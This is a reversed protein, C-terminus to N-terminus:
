RAIATTNIKVNEKRAHVSKQSKCWFTKYMASCNANLFSHSQPRAFNGLDWFFLVGSTNKG